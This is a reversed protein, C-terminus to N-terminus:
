FLLLRITPANDKPTITGVDVASKELEALNDGKRKRKGVMGKRRYRMSPRAVFDKIFMTVDVIELCNNFKSTSSEQDINEYFPKKGTEPINIAM